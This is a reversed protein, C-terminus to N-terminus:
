SALGAAAPEPHPHRGTPGKGPAFELNPTNTVWDAFEKQKDDPLKRLNSHSSSLVQGEYLPLLPVPFVHM